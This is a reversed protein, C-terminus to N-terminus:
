YWLMKLGAMINGVAAQAAESGPEHLLITCVHLLLNLQAVHTLESSPLNAISRYQRPLSLRFRALTTELADFQTRTPPHPSHTHAIIHGLLICLKRIYHYPSRPPASAPTPTILDSLQHAFPEIVIHSMQEIEGSQFVAEDVPFNVCFVREDVVTPWGPAWSVLRDLVFVAWVARRQEELEQESRALPGVGARGSRRPSDIEHLGLPTCMRYAKALYVWLEAMEATVLCYLCIYVAAQVNLLTFNGRAVANDFGRKAAAAWPASLASVGSSPNIHAALSALIYSLPNPRSLPGGAAIDAMIAARYLCPMFPHIQEFFTEVLETLAAPSPFDADPTDSEVTAPEPWVLESDSGAFPSAQLFHATFLNASSLPAETSRPRKAPPEHSHRQNGNTPALQASPSPSPRTAPPSSSGHNIATFTNQSSTPASLLPPTSPPQATRPSPGHIVLPHAEEVNTNVAPPVPWRNANSSPTSNNTKSAHFSSSSSHIKTVTSLGGTSYVCRRELRDCASCTPKGGDCKRKRSRCSLCAQNRELVKKTQPTAAAAATAATAAPTSATTTATNNAAASSTSSSASTTSSNSSTTTTTSSTSATELPRKAPISSPTPASSVAISNLLPPPTSPSAAM